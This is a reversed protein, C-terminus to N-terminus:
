FIFQRVNASHIYKLARLLQYIIFKHHDDTLYTVNRERQRKLIEYLSNGAYQTVIYRCFILRIVLFSLFAIDTIIFFHYYFFELHFIWLNQLTNASLDPTYLDILKVVNEHMMMQLLRVERFFKSIEFPLLQWINKM